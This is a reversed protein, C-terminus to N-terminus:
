DFGLPNEKNLESLFALKTQSQGRMNAVTYRSLFISFGNLM